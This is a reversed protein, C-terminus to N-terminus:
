FCSSSTLTTTVSPLVTIPPHTNNQEKIQTRSTFITLNIVHSKFVKLM